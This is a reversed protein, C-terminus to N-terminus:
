HLYQDPERNSCLSTLNNILDPEIVSMCTESDIRSAIFSLLKDFDKKSVKAHEKILGSSIYDLATFNGTNPDVEGSLQVVEINNDETGRGVIALGRSSSFYLMAYKYIGSSHLLDFPNM